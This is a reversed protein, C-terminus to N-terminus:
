GVVVKCWFIRFTRCSHVVKARINRRRFLYKELASQGWYSPLERSVPVEKRNSKFEKVGARV